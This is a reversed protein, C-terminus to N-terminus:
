QFPTEVHIVGDKKLNTLGHLGMAVSFTFPKPRINSIGRDILVDGVTVGTM